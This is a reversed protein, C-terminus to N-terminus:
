EGLLWLLEQASRHEKDIIAQKFHFKATEISREVYIGELYIKGLLFNVEELEYESSHEPKEIICQLKHIALQANKEIGIGYYYCLALELRFGGGMNECLLYYKFAQEYNGITSYHRALNFAGVSNGEDIAKTYLKIALSENKDCYLGVTLYNAYSILADKDGNEFARKTWEFATQENPKVVITNDISLGESFYDAIKYQSSSDNDSAKQLLQKYKEVTLHECTYNYM